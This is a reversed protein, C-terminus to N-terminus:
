KSRNHRLEKLWHKRTSSDMQRVHAKGLVLALYRAVKQAEEQTVQDIEIKMDQPLLERIFVSRELLHAAAM